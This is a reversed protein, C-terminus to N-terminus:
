AAIVTIPLSTVGRLFSDRTYVIEGAPRIARTQRLLEEFLIKLELHAIHRGLCVHPGGGFALHPNPSRALDLRLPDDIVDPDYNASAFMMAIKEGAAIPQGHIEVERTTTRCFHIVPSAWRVMEETAERPIDDAQARLLDMQDPARMLGDLAFSAANRTTDAGAGALLLTFGMLEDDSLTEDDVASVIKSMLDTGPDRRRLEALEVGYAWIGELAATLDDLSPAYAPDTPVTFANIWRL